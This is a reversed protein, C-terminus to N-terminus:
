YRARAPQLARAPGGRQPRRQHPLRGCDLYFSPSRAYSSRERLYVEYSAEASTEAARKMARLYPTDPSWPQISMSASASTSQKAKKAAPAGGVAFDMAECEMAHFPAPEMPAAAM